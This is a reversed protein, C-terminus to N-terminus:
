LQVTFMKKWKRKLAEIIHVHFTSPLLKTSVIPTAYKKFLLQSVKNKLQGSFPQQANSSESDISRTFKLLVLSGMLIPM